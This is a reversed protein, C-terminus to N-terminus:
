KKDKLKKLDLEEFLIKVPIGMHFWYIYKKQNPNEKQEKRCQEDFEIALEFLIKQWRKWQNETFFFTGGFFHSIDLKTYDVTKYIGKRIEVIDDSDTEELYALFKIYKDLLRRHYIIISKGSKATKQVYEKNYGKSLDDAPILTIENADSTLSYYHAEINARIHERKSIEVIGLEILKQLHPHITSKSKRLKKALETFSLEPYVNLLGWIRLRIGTLVSMDITPKIQNEEM